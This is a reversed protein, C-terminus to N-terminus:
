LVMSLSKGKEEERRRRAFRTPAGRAPSRARHQAKTKLFPQKLVSLVVRAERQDRKAVDGDETLRKEGLCSPILLSIWGIRPPSAGAALTEHFGLKFLIAVEEETGRERVLEKGALSKLVRIVFSSKERLGDEACRTLHTLSPVPPQFAFGLTAKLTAIHEATFGLLAREAFRPAGNLRQPIGPM